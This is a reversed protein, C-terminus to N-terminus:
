LRSAIEPWDAPKVIHGEFGAERFAAIWEAQEPRIRGRDGKLELVLGRSGKLAVVDPFGRGDPDPITQYNGPGRRVIKVTSGFHVVRWGAARLDAMVIKQLEREKM